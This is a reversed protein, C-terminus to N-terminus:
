SGMMGPIKLPTRYNKIVIIGHDATVTISNLTSNQPTAVNLSTDIAALM